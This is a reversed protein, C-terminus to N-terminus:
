SPIANRLAALVPTDWRLLAPRLWDLLSARGSWLAIRLNEDISLDGFVSPIQFKRGM